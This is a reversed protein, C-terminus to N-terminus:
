SCIEVLCGLPRCNGSSVVFDEPSAVWSVTVPVDKLPTLSEFKMRGGGRVPTRGDHRLPSSCPSPSDSPTYPQLYSSSRNSSLKAEISTSPGPPSFMPTHPSASYHAELDSTSTVPTIPLDSTSTVPTIPLDSTSTVPTIPGVEISSSDSRQEVVEPVHSVSVSSPPPIIEHAAERTSTLNVPPSHRDFMAKATCPAATVTIGSGTRADGLLCKQEEQLSLQGFKEPIDKNVSEKTVQNGPEKAALLPGGQPVVLPEEFVGDSVRSSHSSSVSSADVSGYTLDEEEEEISVEEM